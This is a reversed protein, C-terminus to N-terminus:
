REPSPQLDWDNDPLRVIVVAAAAFGIAQMGWALLDLTPSVLIVAAVFHLPQSIMTLLAAWRSVASSRWMAIGLLVTGVVHGVVFVGAAVATAPHMSESLTTMTTADVGTTAGSWLLVDSGVLWGLSLYGPVLLILAAATMRPARIRTLRGVWIAAPVLTLIAVLGLWLVASQRGPSSNVAAVASAPGDATSYPLIFRLVAVAAPGIPLLVAALLRTSRRLDAPRRAPAAAPRASSPGARFSLSM